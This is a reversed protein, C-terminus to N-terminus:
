NAPKTAVIRIAGLAPASAPLATGGAPFGNSQFIYAEIDAVKPSSLSGPDDAPMTDHIRDFLDGASTGNWNNLFTGTSLAPASDGGALTAGHCAACAKEYSAKGRAAQDATYVGQWVTGAGQAVAASSIAALAALGALIAASISPSKM